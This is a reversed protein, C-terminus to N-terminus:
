SSEVISRERSTPDVLNSRKDLEVVVELTCNGASILTPVVHANSMIKSKTINMKLGVQQFIDDLDSFMISLDELSEAMLVIDNAFRLHTIYESNINMGFGKWELFKFADELAAIFLKPSIINGQRVARQMPVAITSHEQVRVSM